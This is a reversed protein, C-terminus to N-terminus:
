GNDPDLTLILPYHDSPLLQKENLNRPLIMTMGFEDRFRFVWSEEKNVRESLEPPVFLYDLQRRVGVRNGNSLQMYTFREDRPINAVELVDRLQTREYLARFEEDPEPLAVSGNFDGGLIIPVKGGFDANIEAYITVLKELEARRRERGGPDIRDRDLQSKLHVQLIVLAPVGSADDFVRLELVDRSFRHSTIRASKLDGYGTDKSQREHPYLFDIPRQKHSILDYTFPLSRRVLYGLDIGRDSNGEILHPAYEDDLFYRSFNSLSELGGVECLLLIDPDMERVAKALQRIQHIPKNPISSTSLKQWAKEDLSHLVQKMNTPRATSASSAAPASPAIRGANGSVALRDGQRGAGTVPEILVFLNEVNFAVIRLRTKAFVDM